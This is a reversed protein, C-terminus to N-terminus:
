GPTLIPILTQELRREEEIKSIQELPTELGKNDNMAEIVVLHITVFYYIGM